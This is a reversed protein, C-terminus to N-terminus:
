KKTYEFRVTYDDVKYVRKVDRYYSKLHPAKLDPNMFVQNFSYVVDEATFPKGDHWKVDKRLYFTYVKKDKSIDWHTAINPIWDLTDKDQEILTDFIYNNIMSAYADTATMPNLTAPDADLHIRIHDNPISYNGGCNVVGLAIFFFVLSLIIKSRLSM